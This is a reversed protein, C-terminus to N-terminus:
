DSTRRFDLNFFHFDPNPLDIKFGTIKGYSDMSFTIYGEPLYEDRFKIQFTDHHWHIMDGTFLAATPELTLKLIDNRLEVTAEGYMIDNYIGVYDAIPLSPQTGEVRSSIRENRAEEEISAGISVYELFTESWDAPEDKLMLDLLYYVLAQPLRSMSNTLIVFGFNEEPVLAIKSIYGPMGGGHELIKHGAYDYTNWGLAYGRSQTGNLKQFESLGRILHPYTLKEITEAGLIKKNNWRGNNLFMEIWHSMDEVTSFVSAAPNGVPFTYNIKKGDLHPYAITFHDKLDGSSTVTNIMQLPYLFREYLFDSWSQGTVTEIIEGALIYMCNQYGYERRFDNIVPLYKMRNVVENMSYSSEYWLLDGYFTGLGSRHSLIDEINLHKSIFPDSLEFDPIIEIVRTDWNIKGEEVLIGIAAATFAKTLSAINFVTNAVMKEENEVDSWGFENKYITENDKIIAISLGTVKFESVAKKIYRDLGKSDLEQSLLTLPSNFLLLFIVARVSKGTSEM